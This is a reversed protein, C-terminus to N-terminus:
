KSVNYPMFAYLVSSAYKLFASFYKPLVLLSRNNDTNGCLCLRAPFLRPVAINHHLLRTPTVM